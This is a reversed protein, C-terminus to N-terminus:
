APSSVATFSSIFGNIFPMTFFGKLIDSNIHANWSANDQLALVSKLSSINNKSNEKQQFDQIGNLLALIKNESSQGRDSLKL